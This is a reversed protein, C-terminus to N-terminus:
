AIDPPHVGSPARGWGAVEHGINAGLSGRGVGRRGKIARAAPPAPASLDPWRKKTPGGRNFVGRCSIDCPLNPSLAVTAHRSQLM